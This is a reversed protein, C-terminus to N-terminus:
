VWWWGRSRGSRRGGRSGGTSSRRRGLLARRPSMSSAASSPSPAASARSTTEPSTSPRSVAPFCRRDFPSSKPRRRHLRHRHPTPAPAPFPKPPPSAAPPSAPAPLSSLAHTQSPPRRHRCPQQGTAAPRFEAAVLVIVAANDEKKQIKNPAKPGRRRPTPRSIDSSPKNTQKNTQKDPSILSDDIFRSVCPSGRGLCKKTRTWRHGHGKQSVVIDLRRAFM